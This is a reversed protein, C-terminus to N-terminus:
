VRPVVEFLGILTSTFDVLFVSPMPWELQRSPTSIVRARSRVDPGCNEELSALLVECLSFDSLFLWDMGVM